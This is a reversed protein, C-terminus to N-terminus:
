IKVEVCQFARISVSLNSVNHINAITTTDNKYSVSEGTIVVSRRMTDSM